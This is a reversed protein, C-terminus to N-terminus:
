KKLERLGVIKAVTAAGLKGDLELGNDKQCQAVAAATAPGYQGDPHGSYYGADKLIKQITLVNSGQDGLGIPVYEPKSPSIPSLSFYLISCLAGM